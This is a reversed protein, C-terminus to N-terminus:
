AAVVKRKDVYRGSDPCVEVRASYFHSSQILRGTTSLRHWEREAYVKVTQGCHRCTTTRIRPKM